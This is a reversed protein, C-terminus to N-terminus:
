SDDKLLEILAATFDDAQEINSLHAADLFKLRANPIHAALWESHEPPTAPDRSGGIVLTEAKILAATPRLDMDRIAASCGAYGLAQTSLLQERVARVAVEGTAIFEPTFWRELVPEVMPKMGNATVAQIREAWGSPPGMYASTNALVIRDFREPARYGLWQGTMGGLSVGAFHAKSIDLHDMLEIVDRGLRDLSYGGTPVDSSGHGRKDYRIIDFHPALAEMQPNWLNMDTGLSNSLVLTPNEASGDRRWAIKCGDDAIMIESM